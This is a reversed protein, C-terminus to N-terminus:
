CAAHLCIESRLKGSVAGEEERLLLSQVEGELGNAVREAAIFNHCCSDEVSLSLCAGLVNRLEGLDKLDLGPDQHLSFDSTNWITAPSHLHWRLLRQHVTQVLNHLVISVGVLGDQVLLKSITDHTGDRERRLHLLLRILLAVPDLNGEPALPSYKATILM